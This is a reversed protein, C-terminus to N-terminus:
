SSGRITQRRSMAHRLASGIVAAAVLLAAPAYPNSDLKYATAVFALVFGVLFAGLLPHNLPADKLKLMNSEVLHWSAVGLPVILTMSVAFALNPELAPLKAAIVQQIPFAYLYIGYSYDGPLEVQRTGFAIAFVGLFISAHVIPVKLSAPVGGLSAAICVAVLAAPLAPHTPIFRRLQYAASGAFFYSACTLHIGSQLTLWEPRLVLVGGVVVYAAIKVARSTSLIGSLHLIFLFFYIKVELAISWLSGNIVQPLSNKPFVAFGDVGAIPTMLSTNATVFLIADRWHSSNSIKWDSFPAAIALSVLSAVFLGPAIRLLRSKVFFVYDARREIARTVLFGSVLFFMYLGVRHAATLGLEKLADEYPQPPMIAFAHGYVVLIAAILRVLDFNNRSFQDDQIFRM